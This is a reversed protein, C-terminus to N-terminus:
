PSKEGEPSNQNENLNNIIEEKEEESLNDYLHDTVTVTIAAKAEPYSHQSIENIPRYFDVNYRRGTDDYVSYGAECGVSNDVCDFYYDEDTRAAQELDLGAVENVFVKFDADSIQNHTDWVKRYYNMSTFEIEKDGNFMSEEKVFEWDKLDVDYLEGEAIEKLYATRDDYTSEGSVVKPKNYMSFIVVAALISVLSIMGLAIAGKHILPKDGSDQQPANEVIVVEERDESPSEEVKNFNYKTSM